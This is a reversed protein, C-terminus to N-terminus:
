RGRGMPDDPSTWTRGIFHSTILRQLPDRVSGNQELLSELHLRVERLRLVLERRGDLREWCLDWCSRSLPVHHHRWLRSQRLYVTFEVEDRRGYLLSISCGRKSVGPLHPAFLRRVIPQKRGLLIARWVLYLRYQHDDM